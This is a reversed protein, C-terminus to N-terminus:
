AHSWPQAHFRNFMRKWADVYGQWSPGWGAPIKGVGYVYNLGADAYFAAPSQSQSMGLRQKTMRTDQSTPAGSPYISPNGNEQMVFGLTGLWEQYAGDIYGDEASRRAGPFTPATPATSGGGGSPQPPAPDPAPVDDTPPLAPAASARRTWWLIAGGVAVAAAIPLITQMKKKRTTAM